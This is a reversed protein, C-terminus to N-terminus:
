QFIKILVEEINISSWCKKEYDLYTITEKGSRFFILPCGDPIIGSLRLILELHNYPIGFINMSKVGKEEGFFRIPPKFANDFLEACFKDMSVTLHDRIHKNKDRYCM